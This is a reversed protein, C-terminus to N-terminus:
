IGESCNRDSDNYYAEGVIATTKYVIFVIINTLIVSKLKQHGPVNVAFTINLCLIRGKEKGDYSGLFGIVYPLSDIM